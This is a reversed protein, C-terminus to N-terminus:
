LKTRHFINTPVLRIVLMIWRWFFPVYLVSPGGREVAQKISRAVAEPKAWLAGKKEFAATMPTDVFGPKVLIARAETKALRHALGQVFAALGAKTAGYAYNSQRGRDGAVSGVVALVGRGQEELLNASARCWEAASTFNAEILHALADADKETEAQDGLVGYFLYIADLQGGLAERARVLVEAANATEALDMAQVDVRGAGRARLDAAVQDLRLANRALLFLDAGDTAHLRATAEAMASLAGIIVVKRPQANTM